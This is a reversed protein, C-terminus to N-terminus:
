SVEHSSSKSIYKTHDIYIFNILIATPQIQLNRVDMRWWIVLLISSSSALIRSRNVQGDLQLCNTVSGNVLEGVWAWWALRLTSYIVLVGLRGLLAQESTLPYV